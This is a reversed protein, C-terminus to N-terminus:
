ATTLQELEDRLIAAFRDNADSSWLTWRHRLTLLLRDGLAAAGLGLGLPMPAPPSFFVDTLSLHDGEVFDTPIRGLNSLVLTEAIAGGTRMAWQTAARRGAVAFTPM